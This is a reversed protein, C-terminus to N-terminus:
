GSAIDGLPVNSKTDGDDRHGEEQHDDQQSEKMSSHEVGLPCLPFSNVIIGEISLTGTHKTTQQQKNNNTATKNSHIQQAATCYFNYQMLTQRATWNMARGM